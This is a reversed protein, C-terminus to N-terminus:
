THMNAHFSHQLTVPMSKWSLFLLAVRIENEKEFSLFLKTVDFLCTSLVHIQVLWEQGDQQALTLNIGKLVVDVPTADSSAAAYLPKQEGNSAVRILLRKPTQPTYTDLTLSAAVASIVSILLLKRMTWQLM